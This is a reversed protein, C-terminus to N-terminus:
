FSQIQTLVHLDIEDRILESSCIDGGSLLGWNRLIVSIARGM